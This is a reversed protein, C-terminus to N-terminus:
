RRLSELGRRLDRVMLYADEGDRYFRPLLVIRRFGHREYFRVARLNRARVELVSRGIGLEEMVGLLSGLLATGIGRGREGSSVALSLIHLFPELSPPLEVTAIIYGLIRGGEEYVLFIDALHKRLVRRPWPSPFSEREIRLVEELDEGRAPRIGM